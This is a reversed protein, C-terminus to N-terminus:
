KQTRKFSFLILILYRLQYFILVSYFMLSSKGYCINLWLFHKFHILRNTRTILKSFMIEWVKEPMTEREVRERWVQTEKGLVKTGSRVRWWFGGNGGYGLASDQRRRGATGRRARGGDRLKGSCRKRGKLRPRLECRLGRVERPGPGRGRSGETRVGRLAAHQRGEYDCIWETIYENAM